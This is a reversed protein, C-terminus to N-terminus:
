IHPDQHSLSSEKSRKYAIIKLPAGAGPAGTSGVGIYLGFKSYYRFNKAVWSSGVSVSSSM